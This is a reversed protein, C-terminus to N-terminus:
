AETMNHGRKALKTDHLLQVTFFFLLCPDLSYYTIAQSYFFLIDQAYYPCAYTRAMHRANYSKM